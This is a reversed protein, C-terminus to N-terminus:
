PTVTVDTDSSAGNWNSKTVTITYTACVPTNPTDAANYCTGSPSAIAAYTYAANNTGTCVEAYLTPVSISNLYSCVTTKDKPYRNNDTFYEGLKLKVQQANSNFSSKKARNQTGSYSVIAITALIGITAIVVILEVLTFGSM